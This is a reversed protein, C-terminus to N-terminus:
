KAQRFPIIDGPIAETRACFQAWAEMLQHRQELRKADRAYIREIHNGIVHGLAMEIAERPFGQDNAWSSFTSRFGHVTFDKTDIFQDLYARVATDSPPRGTTFIIRAHIGRAFVYETKVGDAKQVAQMTKLIEIASESLVIVQEQKTKRGPKTREWPLVWLKAEWDIENWRLHRAELPRVATLIQFQLLYSEVPIPPRESPERKLPYVKNLEVPDVFWPSNYKTETGPQRRAGVKGASIARQIESRDIGTAEAAEALTYGLPSRNLATPTRLVAMLTGIKQYPLSGLHKVTHTERHDHLLIGLPGKMSAPNDGTRYGKAKARDLIAELHMHVNRAQGPKTNWIPKLLQEAQLHDIVAVPLQEFAPNLYKRIILRASKASQPRWTKAKHDYYDAACFGFTVQKSEELRKALQEAKRSEMPDIGKLIQHRCGRALERAEELSITHLPGLGMHAEGGRGFRSRSYRFIWSKAGGSKGVQLYLGGGDSYMGARTVTDVFRSKLRHIAM